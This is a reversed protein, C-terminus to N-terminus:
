GGYAIQRVINKDNKGYIPCAWYCGIVAFINNNKNFYIDTGIFTEVNTLDKM